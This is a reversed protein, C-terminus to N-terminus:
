GAQEISHSHYENIDLNQYLFPREYRGVNMPRGYLMTNYWYGYEQQAAEENCLQSCGGRM